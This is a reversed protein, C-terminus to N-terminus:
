LFNKTSSRDIMTNVGKSEVKLITGLVEKDVRFSFKWTTGLVEKDVQFSIYGM